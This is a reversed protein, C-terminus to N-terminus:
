QIDWKISLYDFDFGWQILNDICEVIIPIYRTDPIIIDDECIM